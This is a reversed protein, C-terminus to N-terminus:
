ERRLMMVEDLYHDEMVIDAAKDRIEVSYKDREELVLEAQKLTM